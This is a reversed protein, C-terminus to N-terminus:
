RMERRVWRTVCLYRLLVFAVAGEISAWAFAASWPRDRLTILVLAAVTLAASRVMRMRRREEDAIIHLKRSRCIRDALDDIQQM